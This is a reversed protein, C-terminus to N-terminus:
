GGPVTGAAGFALAIIIAVCACFLLFLFALPILLTAVARGTSLALSERIGLVQLVVIWIGFCVSSLLGVTLLLVAGGLNLLATLPALLLGPVSAFALTSLLATFQGHGGFLRGVGYFVGAIAVLLVPSCILANVVALLLSGTFTTISEYGDALGPPATDATADAWPSTLGVLGSLLTIAMYLALAIPWPRAAAIERMAAVPRVIVGMAAEVPHFRRAEPVMEETDDM